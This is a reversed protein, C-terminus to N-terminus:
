AQAQIFEIQCQMTFKNQDARQLALQKCQILHSDKSLQTLFRNIQDFTGNAQLLKYRKSRWDKQKEKAQAFSQISIGVKEAIDFLFLTQEQERYKELVITNQKKLDGLKSTFQNIARDALIAEVSQQEYRNFMVRKMEVAAALRPQLLFYYGSFILSAACCSFLYRYAPNTHVAWRYFKGKQPVFYM